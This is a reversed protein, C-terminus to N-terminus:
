ITHLGSIHVLRLIASKGFIGFSQGSPALRNFVTVKSPQVHDTSGGLIRGVLIFPTM